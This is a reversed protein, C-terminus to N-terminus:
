VSSNDKIVGYLVYQYKCPIEIGGGPVWVGEPALRPVDNITESMPALVHVLPDLVHGVTSRDSCKM